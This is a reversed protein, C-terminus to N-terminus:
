KENKVELGASMIRKSQIICKNATENYQRKIEELIQKFDDYAKCIKTIM